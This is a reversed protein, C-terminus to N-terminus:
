WGQGMIDGEDKSKGQYQFLIALDQKYYECNIVCEKNQEEGGELAM